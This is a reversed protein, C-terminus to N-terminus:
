PARKELVAIAEYLEIKDLKTSGADVLQAYKRFMEFGIEIGGNYIEYKTISYDVGDDDGVGKKKPTSSGRSSGVM